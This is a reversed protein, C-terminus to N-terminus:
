PAVVVRLPLMLQDDALPRGSADRASLRELTSTNYWGLALSYNGSPLDSPLALRVEEVLVEHRLWSSAPCAGMCPVTDEQAFLNGDPGLLHVFRVLDEQPTSLAKWALSFELIQGPAAYLDGPVDLGLLTAVDGFSAHLPMQLPPARFERPRGAVAIKGLKVDSADDSTLVLEFTGTPLDPPLDLDAYTHVVHGAQLEPSLEVTALVGTDNLAITYSQTRSPPTEALWLLRLTLKQGPAIEAPWADLGLLTIGSAFSAQV